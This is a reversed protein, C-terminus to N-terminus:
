PNYIRIPAFRTHRMYGYISDVFPIRVFAESLPAYHNKVKRAYVIADEAIRPYAVPM